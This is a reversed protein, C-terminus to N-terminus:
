TFMALDREREGLLLRAYRDVSRRLSFEQARAAAGRTKTEDREDLRKLIARALAQPDAVPVLDGWRGYELIEAPGSPCDTSVVPTGLAMAEALVNGFGEWRSSLVFVAARKMYKYPNVEFGPLSVVEDLGLDHVMRELTPREKGEGLIMLRAIREKRVLSFAKILTGFDKQATLRGVALVVPPEGPAFWPHHVPEAARIFIADSVVPNYVVHVKDKRIGIFRILDVAVGHSVAVVSDARPYTVRMLMPIIKERLKTVHQFHLIPNIRVSVVIRVPVGSLQRAWLAVINIYDKATLLARPRVQRLYRVLAFTSALARTGGLDIIRAGAPVETALPGDKRVVVLDVALGRQIFGDALRLMMREVGGLEFSPLLLAVRENM